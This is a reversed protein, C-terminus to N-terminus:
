INKDQKGNWKEGVMLFAKNGNVKSTEGMTWYWYVRAMFCIMIFSVKTCEMKLIINVEVRKIDMILNDRMSIVMQWRINVMEMLCIMKLSGKFILIMQISLKAMGM